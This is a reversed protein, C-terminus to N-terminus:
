LRYVRCLLGENARKLVEQPSNGFYVFSGLASEVGEQYPNVLVNALSYM